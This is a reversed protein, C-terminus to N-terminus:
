ISPIVVHHQRVPTGGCKKQRKKHKKEKMRTKDNRKENRKAELYLPPRYMTNDSPHIEVYKKDKKTNKKRWGRETTEKKM